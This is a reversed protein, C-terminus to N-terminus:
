ADQAVEVHTVDPHGHLAQQMAAIDKKSVGQWNLGIDKGTSNCITLTADRGVLHILQARLTLSMPSGLYASIMYTPGAAGVVCNGLVAVCTGEAARDPAINGAPCIDWPSFPGGEADQDSFSVLGVALRVLGDKEEWGRFTGQHGAVVVKDGPKFSFPEAAWEHPNKVIQVKSIDKVKDTVDNVRQLLEQRTSGWVLLRGMSRRIVGGGPPLGVKASDKGKTLKVKAFFYQM